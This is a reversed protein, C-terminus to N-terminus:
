LRSISVIPGQLWRHLPGVTTSAASHKTLKLYCVGGQIADLTTCVPNYAVAVAPSVLHHSLKFYLRLYWLAARLKLRRSPTKELWHSCKM